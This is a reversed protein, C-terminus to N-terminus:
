LPPAKWGLPPWDNPEAGITEAFQAWTLIQDSMPTGLPGYMGAKSLYSWYGSMRGMGGAVLGERFLQGLAGGLFSSTSYRTPGLVRHSYRKVLEGYALPNLQSYRYEIVGYESLGDTVCLLLDDYVGFELGVATRGAEIGPRGVTPIWEFPPHASDSCIRVWADDVVLEELDDDHACIPSIQHQPRSPRKKPGDHSDNNSRV